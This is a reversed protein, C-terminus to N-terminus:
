LYISVCISMNKQVYIEINKLFYSCLAADLSTGFIYLNPFSTLPSSFEHISAIILEKLYDVNMSSIVKTTNFSRNLYDSQKGQFDLNDPLLHFPGSHKSLSAILISESPLGALHDICLIDYGNRRLFAELGIASANVRVDDYFLQTPRSLHDPMVLLIISPKKTNQVVYELCSYDSYMLSHSSLFVDPAVHWFADYVSSVYKIFKSSGFFSDIEIAICESAKYINKFLLLLEGNNAGYEFFVLNDNLEVFSQFSRLISLSRHSATSSQNILSSDKSLLSSSVSSRSSLSYDPADFPNIINQDIRFVSFCNLCSIYVKSSTRVQYSHHDLGIDDTASRSLNPSYCFPCCNM